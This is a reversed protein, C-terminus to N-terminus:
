NLVKVIKRVLVKEPYIIKVIYNGAPLSSPLPLSLGQGAKQLLQHYVMNGASGLVMIAQPQKGPLWSIRITAAFPNPFLEVGAMQEDNFVKVVTSYSVQRTDVNWYRIRYYQYSGPAYMDPRTYQTRNTSLFSDITNFKVGDASREIVFLYRDAAMSTNWSLEYGQQLARVNFNTIYLPLVALSGCSTCAPFVQARGWANPKKGGGTASTHSAGVCALVAPSSALSDQFDSLTTVHVCAHGSPAVYTNRVKNILINQKIESAPGMCVSGAVSAADTIIGQFEAKGNNVFFSYASNIVFYNFSKIYSAPTVNMIINPKAASGYPGQLNLNTTINFTGYNYVATNGQWIMGTGGSGGASFKAGPRIIITGSDMNLASLTLDGCVVLTGGRMTLQSMTATPGYYWRKDGTVLTQNDTLSPETGQCSDLPPAVKCQSFSVNTCILLLFAPFAALTSARRMPPTKLIISVIDM